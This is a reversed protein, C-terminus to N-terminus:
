AKLDQALRLIAADDPLFEHKGDFVILETWATGVECCYEKLREFSAVGIRHDFLEDHDAIALCLRRPYSLCAVEADDFRYAANQWCWDSWGVADRSNFYACSIASLLRTELASTYITYFGGYSLGVMGFNKVYPQTEFYDLIRRIGYVEIATISSGVRKLRADLAKRDHEAGYVPTEWLLLQPAFVHVGCRRVRQLMDRYNKTDGFMGCIHEPVGGGGHQVIVMPLKEEGDARFLLGSMVVGELIEFRMRYLTYGDEHSLLQCGVEGLPADTHGVLPWGLMEALAHRYPEPERMIDKADARRDELAQRQRSQLLRELGAVYDARYSEATKREETYRM